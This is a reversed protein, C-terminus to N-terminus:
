PTSIHLARKKHIKGVNLTVFARSLNKRTNQKILSFKINWPHPHPPPPSPLVTEAESLTHGDVMNIKGDNYDATRDDRTKEGQRVTTMMMM